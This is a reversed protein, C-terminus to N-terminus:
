EEVLIAVPEPKGIVRIGQGGGISRIRNMACDTSQKYVQSLQCDGGWVDELEIEVLIRVRAKTKIVKM